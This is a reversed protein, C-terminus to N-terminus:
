SMFIIIDYIFSIIKIVSIRFALTLSMPGSYMRISCIDTSVEFYSDSRLSLGPHTFRRYVLSFAWFCSLLIQVCCFLIYVFLNDEYNENFSFLHCLKLMKINGGRIDNFERSHKEM